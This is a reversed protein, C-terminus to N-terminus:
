NKIFNLIKKCRILYSNQQAKKYANKVLKEAIDKNELLTKIKECLDETNNELFFLCENNNCIERIRPLDSAIIPTKSAMYEFLKIPSMWKVTLCSSTYPALLIDAAKHYYPILENELFGLFRINGKLRFKKVYENWKKVEKDSGGIIYFILNQNELLNAANLIIDIGRGEKLSGTYLIIKKNIPLKLMKRLDNKDMNISDYKELDVADDLILIKEAPVGANILYEKIIPHITILCKFQAKQFSNLYKHFEPHNKNPLHTELITNLKNKICCYVADYSRCYILNFDKKFCYYSIKKHPNNINILNLITKGVNKFIDNLFGRKYNNQLEKHPRIQIVKKSQFFTKRIFKRLKNLALISKPSLDYFYRIPIKPSIDYLKYIDKIRKRIKTKFINQVSFIEIEHNLSFFANAHKMLNISNATLSPIGRSSIIAIKM